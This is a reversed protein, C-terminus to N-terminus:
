MAMAFAGIIMQIPFVISLAAIGETGVGRGIFITDVFNYLSIVLM